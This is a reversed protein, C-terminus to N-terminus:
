EDRESTAHKARRALFLAVSSETVVWRGARKEGRLSGQLVLRWARGWSIRLKQAAEALSIVRRDGIM